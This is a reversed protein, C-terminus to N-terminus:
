QRIDQNLVITISLKVGLFHIPKVWQLRLVQQFLENWRHSLRPRWVHTELYLFVYKNCLRVIKVFISWFLLFDCFLTIRYKNYFMAWCSMLLLIPYAPKSFGLCIKRGFYKLKGLFFGSHENFSMMRRFHLNLAHIKQAVCNKPM